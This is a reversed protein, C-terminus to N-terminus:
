PHPSINARVLLGGLKGALYGNRFTASGVLTIANDAGLATGTAARAGDGSPVTGTTLNFTVDDDSVFATDYHFHLTIPITLAGSVPHYTGWGARTMSVRVAVKGLVPIDDTRLSLTPFRSISVRCRDRTFTLDVNLDINFPGRAESDTTRLTARGTLNAILESRALARPTAGSEILCRQLEAKAEDRQTMLRNITRILSAKQNPGADRLRDQFSSISSTLGQIRGQIERCAAPIAIPNCDQDLQQAEIGASLSLIFILGAILKKKM